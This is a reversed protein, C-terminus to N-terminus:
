HRLEYCSDDDCSECRVFEFELTTHSIGFIEELRHKVAQKISSMQEYDCENIVIHAELNTHAEDLQWIHLHHIDEVGEVQRVKTVVQEYEIGEPASQMLIRVARRMMPYSEALIYASIMVTLLTDVIYVRFAIILLGAIIVGVSSLADSLIHVFASQINLNHRSDQHLMAATALNAGLGVVAVAFMVTGNIPEPNMYREIAEKILYFAVIVLTILNLFAGIIEARNYGFTRHTDAERRSIRVAVLSIALSASDNLNHLADSLLSLSGSFIGGIVEALSILLNLVISIVLRRQSGELVHHEHHHHHDQTHSHNM